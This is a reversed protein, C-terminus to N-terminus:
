ASGTGLAIKVIAFVSIVALTINVFYMAIVLSLRRWTTQVYDEIVVQLGLSSHYYLAAVAIVLAIAVYPRGLWDVLGAHDTGVLTAMSYVLWIVLPILALATLRQRWWHTVGEKATGLGRARNLPTQYSM